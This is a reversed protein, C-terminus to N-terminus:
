SRGVEPERAKVAAVITWCVFVQVFDLLQPWSQATGLEYIVMGGSGLLILVISEWPVDSKGTRVASVAIPIASLAFALAAAWGIMDIM